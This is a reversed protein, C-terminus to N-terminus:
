EDKNLRLNLVSHYGEGTDLFQQLANRTDNDLFSLLPQEVNNLHQLSNCVIQDWERYHVDLDHDSVTKRCNSKECSLEMAYEINFMGYEDTIEEGAAINRIAIEFGYGTSMTNCCCCHNVYKANDWSLIRVGDEDMYSYTEIITSLEPHEMRPDDPAIEIELPDKVYTITGIPIGKTAFIGRGKTKNVQRLETHPHIM